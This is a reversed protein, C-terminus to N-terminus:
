QCRNDIVILTAAHFMCLVRIQAEPGLSPRNEAVGSVDNGFEAPGDNLVYNQDPQEIAGEPFLHDQRTQMFLEVALVLDFVVIVVVIVVVFLRDFHRCWLAGLAIRPLFIGNTVGEALCGPENTGLLKVKHKAVVTRGDAEGGDVACQGIQGLAGFGVRQLTCAAFHEIAGAGGVVMVVQNASTAALGNFDFRAAYFFPRILNGCRMTEAGLSM